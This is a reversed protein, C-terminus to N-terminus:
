FIIEKIHINSFYKIHIINGKLKIVSSPGLCHLEDIVNSHINLVTGPTLDRNIEIKFTGQITQNSSSSNSSYYTLPYVKEM